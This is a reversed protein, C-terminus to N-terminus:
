IIYCEPDESLYNGNNLFAAARCGGCISKHECNGCKGTLKRNILDQIAESYYISELSETIINGVRIDLLSCPSVSGDSRIALGGIAASCGACKLKYKNMINKVQIENYINKIPSDIVINSVGKYKQSLRQVSDNLKKFGDKGLNYKGAMVNKPLYRKFGIIQIPLKCEDLLFAVFDDMADINMKSVVCSIQLLVKNKYKSILYLNNLVKQFTGKGRIADHDKELGDLSVQIYNVGADILQLLLEETLLTANTNITILPIYQKVSKIVDVIDKRILPEGGSIFLMSTSYTRLKKCIIEIEELSMNYQVEEVRCHKCRLNCNTTIDITATNMYKQLDKDLM